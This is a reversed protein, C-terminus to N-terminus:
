SGGYSSFWWDLMRSPWFSPPWEGVFNPPPNVPAVRAGKSLNCWSCAPTLNEPSLDGGQSRPIVHDLHAAPNQQCYSCTPPAAGEDFYQARVSPTIRSGSTAADATSGVPIGADDAASVTTVGLGTDAADAEGGGTLLLAINISLGGASYADSNTDSHQGIWQRAQDFLNPQLLTGYDGSEAQSGHLIASAVSLISNAAGAMFDAVTGTPAAAITAQCSSDCGTGTTCAPQNYGGCGAGPAGGGGDLMASSEGSPDSNSIPNDAAYSYGGMQLPSGAELIPDLSTFTGTAPNYQRAGLLDLSTTTDTPKDLFANSDPWSSPAPSLPTGYSDYYRRTIADSAASIAELATNQQNTTEFYVASGTTTRVIQTGDPAAYFRQAGTVSGGTATIQEAGGDAYLTSTGDPDTQLLLNGDADYTYTATGAATTVSAVQGQPTYTIGTFQNPGPPPTTGSTKTASRTEQGDANYGPTTTTSNSGPTTTVVSAMTDPQDEATGPANSAPSSSGITGGPYAIQQTTANALTDQAPPLATNYTTQSTRDGLLDYTWTEWNPAPGGINAAAPTTNACSGLAGPPLTKSDAFATDGSTTGTDTWATTLQSDTYTYCQTDTGGANQEDSASTLDGAQDYTYNIVDAPGTTLAQLSGTSYELRGTAVDYYYDEVLQDGPTGFTASTIQGQPSYDVSDLYDTNDGIQTLQGTNNYSYEVNEAPLGGDAPYSTYEPLGTRSTYATSTTYNTCGTGCEFAGADAPLSLATGTPEYSSDYGTIKETYAQGSADYSASSSPQGLAVTSTGGTLPATDYSWTALKLPEGALGPTSNDEETKRNLQDYKYTLVTKDPDTVSILNGAGDYSYSTQGATKDPGTTYTGTTGPDTEAIKQGTLDYGYTWTNGNADAITAVQGAPTYSYTTTDAADANASPSSTDAYTTSTATQGASNTTMETPTGGAPPTTVTQDMGPYAYSTQWQLAGASYQQAATMRGQGDYSYLVQDPISAPVPADYTTDPSTSADYSPQPTTSAQWGDSNWGTDSVLRGAGFGSPTSQVQVQQLMGDYFAIDQAYGGSETLTGTTIASPGTDSTQYTATSVAYSYTYTPAYGQDTPLTVSTLRGLSDYAESTKLGNPDTVLTPLQRAEDLTSVTKWGLPNTVTTSTPEQESAPSYSTTTKNGDGDTQTTVRGYGDYGTLTTQWTSPWATLKSVGTPLGGPSAVQGLTGPNAITPSAQDYYAQTESVITGGAPAPCGGSSTAQGTVTKVDYPYDEMMPNLPPPTAYLTSTCTETLGAPANDVAAVLGDGNYYSTATSTQWSGSALLRRTRTQDQALMEATLTSLGSGSPPIMTATSNFTWPGNVVEQDPSGGSATYTDTELVRGALWNSDTYSDNLSDKVQVSTTGGSGNADGDMGRMYWTMQETVPDPAAGTTTEVQAYGRFEDWTRWASPVAPNEDQHWAAGGLYNYSTVHPPSGAGTVDSQSVAHVTYQNFWDMSDPDGPPAWYAPYCALTNDPADADTINGGTGQACTSANYTVAIAGGTGTDIDTIRPRYLGPQSSGTVRNPMMSVGFSTPPLALATGDEGTHTISTLSMVATDEGTGTSYTQSLVYYDAEDYKDASQSTLVETTIYHLREESFFTPSANDCSTDTSACIQDTPTDPYNSSSVTTCGGTCRTSEGFVVKAAPYVTTSGSAQALTWGYEASTLYGGRIYSTLTGAGASGGRMYYNSETAYTYVALNGDPDEVYDLNWRYPLQAWSSTGGSTTNCLDGSKPCYVPANWASSTTLASTNDGPLHDTGFYYKTGDTTTVVWYEDGYTGSIGNVGNTDLQISTGDDDQLHWTGPGSGILTGSHGALSLTANWGDWCEDGAEAATASSDQSCPEFSQEIYGPGYTWGDGIQGGQPNQASTIGDITQSSYDLSVQPTAGGLTPPVTIPYSYDFGGDQEVWSGEPNLSTAAYSGAEGGPVSVAALEVARQGAAPALAATLRGAPGPSAATASEGLGITASVTGSGNNVTAVPVPIRCARAAPDWGACAPLEVLKLRSGWSGGYDNEFGSYDLAVTVTGTGTGTVKMLVGSIGAAVAARRPAIAVAVQRPRAGRAEASVTVPLAGAPQAGTLLRSVMGALRGDRVTVDQTLLATGSGTPWWKRAPARWPVAAVAGPEAPPRLAAGPRSKLPRGPVSPTAQVKRPKWLPGRYVPPNWVVHSGVPAAVAPSVAGSVLGALLGAAAAGAVRGRWARWGGM